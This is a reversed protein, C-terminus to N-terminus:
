PMRRSQSPLPAASATISKRMAQHERDDLEADEGDVLPRTSPRQCVAVRARARACAWWELGHWSRSRTLSGM